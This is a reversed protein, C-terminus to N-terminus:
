NPRIEKSLKKLSAAQIDQRDIGLLRRTQNEWLFEMTLDKWNCVVFGLLELWQIGVSRGVTARNAPPLALTARTFRRQRVLQDDRMRVFRIVNKLTQPQFMRIGDSIETRLGGM